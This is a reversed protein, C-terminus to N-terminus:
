CNKLPISAYLVPQDKEDSFNLTVGYPDIEVYNSIVRTIDSKIESLTEPSCKFRDKAIIYKLRERAVNGSTSEDTFNSDFKIM